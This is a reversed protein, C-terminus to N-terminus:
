LQNHKLFFNASLFVTMQMPAKSNDFFGKMKCFIALIDKRFSILSLDYTGTEFIEKLYSYFHM